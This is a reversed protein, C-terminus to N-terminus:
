DYLADHRSMRREEYGEENEPYKYDQLGFQHSSIIQYSQQALKAIAEQSLKNGTVNLVKLNETISSDLLPELDDDVLTGMKLDLVVLRKMIPAKSIEAVLTKTAEYSCIGLYKVKPYTNGSFIPALPLLANRYQYDRGFWLEFYELEPLDMSCIQEINDQTIDATEIILSKLHEHRLGQCRLSYNEDSTGLYGAVQLVELKPFATLLSGIDFIQVKSRKFEPARDGVVDGIFLAKLSPFMSKADCIAALAPKFTHRQDWYNYDTQLVLAQIEALRPDQLLAEFQSLDYPQDRKSYGMRVVYASNEPDVIGVQRNYYERRWDALTTFYNLPLTLDSM